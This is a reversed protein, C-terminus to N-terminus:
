LMPAQFVVVLTTSPRLTPQEDASTEQIEAAQEGNNSNHINKGTHRSKHKVDINNNGFDDEESSVYEDGFSSNSNHHPLQPEQNYVFLDPRM